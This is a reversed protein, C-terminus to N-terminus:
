NYIVVKQQQMQNNFTVRILYVGQELDSTNMQYNQLQIDKAEFVQKGALDFLQINAGGEGLHTNIVNLIDTAPNPYIKVLDNVIDFKDIGVPNDDALDYLVVDDVGAEVISGGDFELEADPILVDAAVFRLQVTNTAEVHDKLRISAFRWSQDTINVNEIQVWPGEDGSVYVEWFDNGPNAGQNNSYWRHYSIAPATYGKINYIPSTLTTKGDDVDNGGLGNGGNSNGTFACQNDGTPSNDTGMQVEQGADNFTPSPVGIEWIGTSADDEELGITWGHEVDSFDDVRKEEYGVMIQYTLDPFEIDTAGIPDIVPVADINSQVEIYYDIINGKGNAIIWTTYVDEEIFNGAVATQYESVGREKHHVVTGEVFPLYNFDIDVTYDIQIVEQAAAFSDNEHEVEAILQLKIGHIAFAEIIDISNPTGDSLNGNDDDAILAQFLIDSYLLGEDGEARMPTGFHSGIFIQFMENMGIRQGLDWWAGAIIEGDAHVQGVLDEPYVKPEIDYRRIFSNSNGTQFGRSLIPENTLSLGWVDAYGEGLAGNFFQSGLFGYFEYNINHAYEHYVVDAMLALSFCGGGERFFNISSGDAFANCTGDTRDIHTPMSFDLGTMGVPVWAKMWDHITNLSKYASVVTLDAEEPLLIQQEDNTIMVEYSPINASNRSEGEYVTSFDGQMYVTALTPEEIEVNLRGSIDTKYEEGGIVVRMNPLFGLKAPDNANETANGMVTWEGQIPAPVPPEYNHIQNQRYYVIGSNADVLTYLREPSGEEGILGIMGEYVLRYEYGKEAPIPLIKLGTIEIDKVTGELNAAMFGNINDQGVTPTIDIEEHNYVDMTFGVVEFQKTMMVQVSSNWLNVNKYNQTFRVYYYKDTENTQQFQLNELPLRFGKLETTLFFRAKDEVSGEIGVEIPSGAARLPLETLTNFEVYWHGNREQFQQWESQNRLTNQQDPKLIDVTRHFISYNNAHEHGNAYGYNTLLLLVFLCIFKNFYHM